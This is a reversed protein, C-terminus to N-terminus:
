KKCLIPNNKIFREREAYLAKLGGIINDVKKEDVDLDEYGIERKFLEIHKRLFDQYTLSEINEELDRIWAVYLNTNGTTCLFKDTEQKVIDDPVECSSLVGYREYYSEKLWMAMKSTDYVYIGDVEVWSHEDGDLSEVNGIMRKAGPIVSVMLGACFHCWTDTKRSDLLLFSIPMGKFRINYMNNITNIDYSSFHVGYEFNEKSKM